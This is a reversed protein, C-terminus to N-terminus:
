NNISLYYGIKYLKFVTLNPHKGCLNRRELSSFLRHWLRIMSKVLGIHINDTHTLMQSYGRLENRFTHLTNLSEETKRMFQANPEFTNFGVPNDLHRISQGSQKLRKGFLVDEYGYQRFREDFPTSLMVDRSVMFNCTHFHLFPRKRREEARHQSECAKEYLFRLNSREGTGVTYGGYFIESEETNLYSELFRPNTVAMHCDIFLLWQYQAERALFNRIASRGVNQEKCIYRCHVMTNIAENAKVTTQCTSGDDAVIVEYTVGTVTAQQCIDSVLSVCIYDYVPILISIEQKMM